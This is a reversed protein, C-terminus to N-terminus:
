ESPKEPSDPKPENSTGGGQGGIFRDIIAIEDVSKQREDQLRKAAAGDPSIGSNSLVSDYNEVKSQHASRLGSLEAKTMSSKPKGGSENIVNGAEQMQDSMKSGFGSNEGVTSGENTNMFTEISRDDNALQASAQKNASENKLSKKKDAVEKGASVANKASLGGLKDDVMRAAMMTQIGGTAANQVSNHNNVGLWKLVEDPIVHILSFSKKIIIFLAMAYTGVIIPAQLISVGSRNAMSYFATMFMDNVIEAFIGICIMSCILGLIMLGPRITLSLVMGYGAGGRGVVGDGDPHVHIMIWLPAAIVAEICLVAWGLIAGLWLFFPMFPLLVTLMNSILFIMTMLPSLFTAVAVMAASGFLSGVAFLAVIGWFTWELADGVVYALALPSSKYSPDNAMFDIAKTVVKSIESRISNHLSNFVAGFDSDAKAEDGANRKYEEALVGKGKAAIFSETLSRLNNDFELMPGQIKSSEKYPVISGYIFPNVEQYSPMVQGLKGILSQIRYLQMYWSGAYMWGENIIMNSFNKWSENKGAEGVKGGTSADFLTGAANKTTNTFKNTEELLKEYIEKRMKVKQAQDAVYYKAALVKLDADLAIYAKVKAANIATLGGLASYDQKGVQSQRLALEKIEDNNNLSGAGSKTANLLNNLSTLSFNTVAQDNSTNYDFVVQGCIAEKANQTIGPLATGISLFSGDDPYGYNYFSKSLEAGVEKDGSYQIMVPYYSADKKIGKAENDNKLKDYYGNVVFMCYNSRFVGTVFKFVEERDPGSYSALSTMPMTEVYQKWLADALGVGQHILWIVLFQAACFGGMTPFIMASGVVTRIPLWMASWKKGLMEGEHATSMTGAILAYAALIGGVMLVCTNFTLLVDNLPSSVLTDVSDINFLRNLFMEKSKDGAPIEFIDGAMAFQPMFISIVALFIAFFLLLNKSKYM